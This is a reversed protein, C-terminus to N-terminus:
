GQVAVARITKPRVARRPHESARFSRSRKLYFPWPASSRRYGGILSIAVILAFICIAAATPINM